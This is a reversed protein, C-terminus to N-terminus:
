FGYGITFHLRGNLAWQPSTQLPIAYLLGVPGIPTRYRVGSGLSFQTDKLLDADLSNALSGADCFIPLEFRKNLDFRLETSLAYFLRGGAPDLMDEKFGRVDNSGGLYFRQDRALPTNKYSQQIYGFSSAVYLTLWQFPSFYSSAELRLRLFNDQENTLGRTLDITVDVVQGRRPRLFSDRSDFHVHPTLQILNRPITDGPQLEEDASNSEYVRKDIDAYEYTASIDTTIKKEWKRSLGTSLGSSFRQFGPGIYHKLGNFGNFILAIHTGFLRPEVFGLETYYGVPPVMPAFEGAIWLQKNLGL